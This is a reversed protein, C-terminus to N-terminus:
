YGQRTGSRKGRGVPEDEDHRLDSRQSFRAALLQLHLHESPPVGSQRGRGPQDPVRGPGAPFPIGDRGSLKNRDRQAMRASERLCRRRPEDPVIRFLRLDPRDRFHVSAQPSSGRPTRQIGGMYLIHAGADDM